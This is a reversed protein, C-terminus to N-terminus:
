LESRENLMPARVVLPSLGFRLQVGDRLEDDLDVADVDVEDVNAGLVGVGQMVWPQGPENNSFKFTM